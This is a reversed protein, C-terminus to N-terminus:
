EGDSMLINAIRVPHIIYPSGGQRTQAGHRKRALKYAQSVQDQREAPFKKVLKQLKALHWDLDTHAGAGYPHVHAPVAPRKVASTKRPQKRKPKAKSIGRPTRKALGSRKKIKGTIRKNM